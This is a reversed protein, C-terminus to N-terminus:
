EDLTQDYIRSNPSSNQNEFPSPGQPPFGGRHVVVNGADMRAQLWTGFQVRLFARSAPLLLGFGIGDTLFGPTLLLAGGLFIAMADFMAQTPLQGQSTAQTMRTLARIGERRALTAGVAGTLLVIAITLGAGLFGGAKLLLWLELLPVAVFLVFLPGM